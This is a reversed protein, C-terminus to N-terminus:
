GAPRRGASVRRHCIMAATFLMGLDLLIGLAWSTRDVAVPGIALPAVVFPQLLLMWRFMGDGGARFTLVFTALFVALPVVWLFPASAIDTALHSTVAVLLGSPVFALATWALRDSWPTPSDDAAAASAPAVPGSRTAAVLLLGAAVIMVFLTAFGASWLGAQGRLTLTPEIM